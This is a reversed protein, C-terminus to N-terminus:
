IGEARKEVLNHYDKNWSYRAIRYDKPHGEPFPSSTTYYNIALCIVAKCGPLVERPDCRRIPNRELWKMEGNRGDELWEDFADAHTARKAVAIRCDDFGLEAAWAKIQEVKESM